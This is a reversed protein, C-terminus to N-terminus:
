RIEAMVSFECLDFFKIKKCLDNAIRKLEEKKISISDLGDDSKITTGDIRVNVWGEEEYMRKRIELGEPLPPYFDFYLVNAVNLLRKIVVSKDKFNGIAGM